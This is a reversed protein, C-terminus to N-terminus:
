FKEWSENSREAQSDKLFARIEAWDISNDMLNSKNLKAQIMLFFLIQEKIDWKQKQSLANLVEEYFHLKKDMEDIKRQPLLLRQFIRLNDWSIPPNWSTTEPNYKYIPNQIVKGGTCHIEVIDTIHRRMLRRNLVIVIGLDNFCVPDIDFHYQWRNLLSNLDRAHITQFGRLGASLCHFMAHAEERTLIEGLYVVDPNRHLLRYIETTKTSNINVPDVQYKLQHCYTFSQDISEPSEEVYIKRSQSPVLLDLSNILTTKGSNTEGAVTINIRNEVCLYLFAGMQASLMGRHILEPLSFIKRNMKRINFAFGSLVGPSIDVAFRCHFYQNSISCKLTPNTSDLRKNSSIRVFTQIAEIDEESLRISTMCRGYDRHDLYLKDQPGDLYIEDINDDILFPFLLGLRLKKLSIFLALKCIENSDLNHYNLKLYNSIHVVTKEVITGIPLLHTFELDPINNLVHKIITNYFETSKSGFNHYIEIYYEMLHKKYVMITYLSNLTIEYSAVEVMETDNSPFQIQNKVSYPGIFILDGIWERALPLNCILSNLIFEKKLAKELIKKCFKCPKPSKNQQFHCLDILFHDFQSTNKFVCENKENIHSIGRVNLWLNYYRTLKKLIRNDKNPTFLDEDFGIKAVQVEKPLSCIASLACELCILNNKYRGIPPISYHDCNNCHMKLNNQVVRKKPNLGFEEQITFKSNIEITM